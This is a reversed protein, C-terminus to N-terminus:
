TLSYVKYPQFRILFQGGAPAATLAYGWVWDGAAASAATVFAGNSDVTVPLGVTIAGAGAIVQAVCGTSDIIELAGAAVQGPYTGDISTSGVVIIGYPLDTAANALEIRGQTSTLTVGCGESGTFDSGIQTIQAPTKYTLPGLAM